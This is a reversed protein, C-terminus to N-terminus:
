LLEIKISGTAYGTLVVNSSGSTGVGLVFIIKENLTVPVSVTRNVSFVTMSSLPNSNKPVSYVAFLPTYNIGITKYVAVSVNIDDSNTNIVNQSTVFTFNINTITGNRPMIYPLSPNIVTENIFSVSNQVRNCGLVSFSYVLTDNNSSVSIISTNPSSSYSLYIRNTSIPQQYFPITCYSQTGCKNNCNHSM